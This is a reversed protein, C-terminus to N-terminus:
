VPSSMTGQVQSITHQTLRDCCCIKWENNQCLSLLSKSCILTMDRRNGCVRGVSTQCESLSNESGTCRFIDQLVHQLIPGKGFRDSLSQEVGTVM